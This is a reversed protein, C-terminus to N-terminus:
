RGDWPTWAWTQIADDLAKLGREYEGTSHGGKKRNEILRALSERELYRTGDKFYTDGMDFRRHSMRGRFVALPYGFPEAIEVFDEEEM